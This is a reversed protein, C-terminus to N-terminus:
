PDGVVHTVVVPGPVGAGTRVELVDHAERDARDGRALHGRGGRDRVHFAPEGLVRVCRRRHLCSRLYTIDTWAIGTPVAVGARAAAPRPLFRRSSPRAPQPSAVGNRM